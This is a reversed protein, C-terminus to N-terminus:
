QLLYFKHGKLKNTIIYEREENEYDIYVRKTHAEELIKGNKDCINFTIHNPRIKIIDLYESMDNNYIPSWDKTIYKTTATNTNM